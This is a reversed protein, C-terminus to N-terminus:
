HRQSPVVNGEGAESAVAFMFGRHSARSSRAAGIMRMLGWRRVRALGSSRASRALLALGRAMRPTVERAFARVDM